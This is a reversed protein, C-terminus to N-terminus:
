FAYFSSHLTMFSLEEKPLKTNFGGGGKMKSYNLVFVSWSISLNILTLSLASVLFSFSLIFSFLFVLLVAHEYNGACRM